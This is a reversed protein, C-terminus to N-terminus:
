RRDTALVCAVSFLGIFYLNVGELGSAGKTFGHDILQRFAIPVVLTSGAAFCLFVFALLLRGQYPMLFPKLRKLAAVTPRNSPPKPDSM